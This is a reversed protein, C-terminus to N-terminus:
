HNSLLKDIIETVDAIDVNGSADVDAAELNVGQANGSLLYDILVTVDSIDVTGDDNVDGRLVSPAAVTIVYCAAAQLDAPIASIAIRYSGDQNMEMSKVLVASVGTVDATFDDLNPEGNIELSYNAVAPDWGDITVGQYRLDTMQALYVLEM